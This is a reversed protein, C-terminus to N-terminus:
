EAAISPVDPHEAVAIERTKSLRKIRERLTQFSVYLGPIV